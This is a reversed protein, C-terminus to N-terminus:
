AVGFLCKFQGQSEASFPTMVDGESSVCGFVMVTFKTKMVRPVNNSNLCAMQQDPLQTAPLSLFFDDSWIAKVTNLSCQVATM